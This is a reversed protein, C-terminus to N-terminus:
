KLPLDYDNPGCTKGKEPPGANVFIDYDALLGHEELGTAKFLEEISQCRGVNENHSTWV